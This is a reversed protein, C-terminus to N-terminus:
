RFQLNNVEHKCKVNATQTQFCFSVLSM